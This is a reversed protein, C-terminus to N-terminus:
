RRESSSKRRLYIDQITGVIGKPFFIVVLVLILGLFIAYHVTWSSVIDQALNVVVAGIMPGILTGMGGLVSWVVVEGSHIPLLINAPVFVNYIAHLGGALGAVACGLTITLVKYFEVKYGLFKAREENERIAQLVKGWPSDKIVRKVVFYVVIVFFLTFYYFAQYNFLSVKLLGPIYLDPPTVPLGNEGGTFETWTWAIIYIAFGFVSTLIAYYIYKVRISFLAIIFGALTAVLVGTIMAPWLSLGLKEIGMGVGYAGIGFYAVHGFSVVGLSGLFVDLSLAFLAYILLESVFRLYYAGTFYPVLALFAVIVLFLLIKKMKMMGHSISRM